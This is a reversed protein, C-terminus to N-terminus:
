DRSYSGRSTHRSRGVGRRGNSNEYKNEKVRSSHVTLGSLQFALGLAAAIFMMSTGGFSLLPLTIGTLPFVGTMSAINLIVHTGFWGFVGAVLLKMRLDVLHDAVKLLRMLLATFLALITVLGVLGFTEGMIAFVSDNIAEPLYGTAQVSNGIGVGFLGGTGIAIKAHEIHYNDGGSVTESSSDGQLFTMVREMRHAESFILLSGVLLVLFLGIAINKKSIGSMFLMTAVIGALSIGTGMDRQLVVVFFMSIAVIVGIPIITENFDNIKKDRAKIGLFGSMFVLVAFKLIESPQLSGFFGLNFWRTAGLTKQAIGLDAAGAIALVLCAIFSFILMKGSHKALLKYPIMSMAFFAGLAIGLSVLQKVFFYSDSYSSGYANNMVNARQPGIAYIIILGLLMLLGMYLIIQYDPRHPRSVGFGASQDSDSVASM